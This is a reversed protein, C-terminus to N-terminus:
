KVLSFPHTSQFKNERINIVLFPFLQAVSSIDRLSGAASDGADSTRGFVPLCASGDGSPESMIEQGKMMHEKASLKISLATSEKRVCSMRADTTCSAFFGWPGVKLAGVGVKRLVIYLNQVCM